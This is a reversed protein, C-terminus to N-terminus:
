EQKALIACVRTLGLYDRMPQGCKGLVAISVLDRRRDVVVFCGAIDMPSIINGLISFRELPELKQKEFISIDRSVDTFGGMDLSGVFHYQFEALSRNLNDAIVESLEPSVDDLFNLVGIRDSVHAPIGDLYDDSDGSDPLIISAVSHSLSSSM